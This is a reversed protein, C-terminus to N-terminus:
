CPNQPYHLKDIKYLLGVVRNLHIINYLAVLEYSVM